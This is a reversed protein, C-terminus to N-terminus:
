ILLEPYKDLMKQVNNQELVKLYKALARPDKRLVKVTKLKKKIDYLKKYLLKEKDTDFTHLISMLLVGVGQFAVRREGDDRIIIRGFQKSSVSANIQRPRILNYNNYYYVTDGVELNLFEETTM